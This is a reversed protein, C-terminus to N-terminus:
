IWRSKDKWPWIHFMVCCSWTPINTYSSFMYAVLLNQCEEENGLFSHQNKEQVFIMFLFFFFLFLSGKWQLFFFFFSVTRCLVCLLSFQTFDAEAVGPKAGHQACGRQKTLVQTQPGQKQSDLLTGVSFCPGSHTKSLLTCCISHWCINRSTVICLAVKQPCHFFTPKSWIIFRAQFSPTISTCKNGNNLM